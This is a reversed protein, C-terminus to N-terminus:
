QGAMGELLTDYINLDVAEVHVDVHRPTADTVSNKVIGAIEELVIPEHNELKVSLASDVAAENERAALQLLYLYTKIGKTGSQEKLLDYALRFRHTPFLEDRYCYHEFAGPKRVLSDIIHRYQIYSQDRGRLRPLCDIKRQSYYIELTDAYIFIDVWEHRLRSDVSYTNNLVRITGTQGVRMRIQKVSNLRNKPLVHMVNLEQQFKRQRGANRQGILAQLFQDYEDRSAFDRSGRLILEQDVATKFRYHSQEIDGNENPQGAQIKLGQIGYHDLVAQWFRTFQELNNLNNVAASLRDTRHKSPVSGLKWLANEFGTQLSEFSESLCITCAEWNSYTLVFHYLLHRFLEGCITIGLDDMHTFDSQSLEGPVHVQTFYIEKAPGETARWSKLRRQLTRLQGDSFRGPYRRQLWALLTKAQIRADNELIRQVESWVEAFPDQRTRWTHRSRSESPLKGSRLYKRATKEDMEAMSAANTLSRGRARLKILRRVQRDSVM